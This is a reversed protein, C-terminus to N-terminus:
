NGEVTDRWVKEKIGLGGYFEIENWWEVM